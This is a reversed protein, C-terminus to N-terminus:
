LVAGQRIGHETERDYRENERASWETEEQGIAKLRAGLTACDPAPPLARARKILRFGVEYGFDRHGEEHFLLAAEFAAWRERLTAPADTGARWEPMTITAKVQVTLSELTCTSPTQRYRYQWQVTSEALGAFPQGDPGKPGLRRIAETIERATGGTVTYRKITTALELGPVDYPVPLVPTGGGPYLQQGLLGFQVEFPTGAQDPHHEFRNREFYQVAYIQGDAPNLEDFVESIPYGYVTLGGGNEWARRFTGQIIHGTASFWLTDARGPNPVPQFPAEDRRDSAVENGLLGLLVQQGAPLERHHEFRARELWQITRGSGDRLPPTIPFGFRGVGGNEEWYARFAGSLWHGTEPFLIAITPAMAMPAVPAATVNTPALQTLLILILILMRRFSM